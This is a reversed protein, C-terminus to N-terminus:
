ARCFELRGSIREQLYQGLPETPPHSDDSWDGSPFQTPATHCELDFTRCTSLYTARTSTAVASPRGPAAALRPSIPSEYLVIDIGLARLRALRELDYRLYGPLVQPAAPVPPLGPPEGLPTIPKGRSGDARYGRGPITTLEFQRPSLLAQIGERVLEANLSRKAIITETHVIRWAMKGADRWGIDPRALGALIDAAALRWRELPDLFTPNAYLQLEFNDVSVVALHPAKKHRALRELLAVSARLSEGSLSYNFFRCAGISGIDQEGVNMSRSNGFLGLDYPPEADIHRQKALPLAWSNDIIIQQHGTIAAFPDGKPLRGSVTAIVALLAGVVILFLALRIM